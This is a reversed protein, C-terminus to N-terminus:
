ARRRGAPLISALTACAAHVSRPPSARDPHRSAEDSQSSAQARRRRRQDGDAGRYDAAVAATVARRASPVLGFLLGGDSTCARTSCCRGSLDDTSSPGTASSPHRARVHAGCPRRASRRSGTALGVLRELAGGRAGLDDAAASRGPRDRARRECDAHDDGCESGSRSHLWTGRPHGARASRPPARRGTCDARHPTARGVGTASRAALPRLRPGFRARPSPRGEASEDRRAASQPRRAEAIFPAARRCLPVETTSFIRSNTTRASKMAIEATPRTSTSTKPRNAPVMPASRSRRGRASRTMQRPRIQVHITRPLMRLQRRRKVTRARSAGSM